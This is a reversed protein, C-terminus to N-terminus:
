KCFGTKQVFNSFKIPKKQNLAALERDIAEIKTHIAKLEADLQPNHANLKAIQIDLKLGKKRLQLAEMDLILLKLRTYRLRIREVLFIAYRFELKADFELKAKLALREELSDEDNLEAFPLSTYDSPLTITSYTLLVTFFLLHKISHMYKIKM